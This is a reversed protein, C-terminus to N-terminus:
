FAKSSFAFRKEAFLKLCADVVSPDYESGRGRRIEDLTIEIGIGPRYPRHSSMAEVVDAVSIIKAELRIQDGKLGKPYGSGDLKEHHQLIIDAIPWPFQINKLIDYGGQPHTHILMLEIENLKGPKSLIEAPVHIKGLDHIIAAFHIGQIQEESLGMEQAIATALEGVRRQHGATYPDRAEVIAAITQISQELSQRLFVTQQDHEIRARLTIIGYALDNALEELLRVEEVDFTNTESSYINLAGFTRGGGILPLAISSLYGRALAADSWLKFGSEDTIHRCVLTKGSRIVESVPMQNETSEGWSYEKAWYHTDDLGSWAMPTISKQPNEDAYDVVALSYSGQEVIINTVSRLLANENEARVLALNGASLTKLARNARRLSEESQKRETIDRVISLLYPKDLEILKTSVEVPFILGDKRRHMTEFNASGSKSLQKQLAKASEADFVSDIDFVSMSLMEERTYGLIRCGTDNIDLFRMSSPEIVEIADSSNDLLTRFLKMREESDKRQTVDLGISLLGITNDQTDKLTKDYWEILRQRGDKTRIENVNGQTQIDNIAELFLKRTKESESEPLFTSFWDEGKVENLSYGTLKEMYHNFRVIQGQPNLILIIVPATELLYDSFDREKKLLIEAEKRETIDRIIGIANWHGDRIVASLSLEVPFETGDKKLAVLELTKGILPGEGTNKFHSFAINHAALYREPAILTHLSQGIAEQLPYGFIREAAENWYTIKGEDDIMIIADQASATISHFKEESDHLQELARRKEFLINVHDIGRRIAPLLRAFNQKLVFDQAGEQLAVVAMEETIKGSILIFPIYLNFSNFLKLAEMGGFGPIMYDSIIVDWTNSSLVEQMKESTDVRLITIEWEGQKLERELLLTDDPSDEIVLVRLLKKKM